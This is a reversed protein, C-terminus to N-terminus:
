RQRSWRFDLVRRRRTQARLVYAPKGPRDEAVVCGAAAAVGPARDCPGRYAGFALPLDRQRRTAFKALDAPKHYPGLAAARRPAAERAATALAWVVVEAFLQHFEWWNGPVRTLDVAPLAYHNYVKGYTSATTECAPCPMVLPVVAVRPAAALIEQVLREAVLGTGKLRAYGHHDHYKGYEFSDNASFDVFLLVREGASSAADALVSGGVAVVTVPAGAELQRMFAQLRADGGSFAARLGRLTVKPLWPKEDEVHRLPPFGRLVTWPDVARALAAVVLIIRLTM